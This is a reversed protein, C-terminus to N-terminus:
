STVQEWHLGTTIRRLAAVALPTLTANYLAAAITLVLATRFPPIPL